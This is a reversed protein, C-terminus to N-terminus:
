PPAGIAPGAAIGASQAAPWRRVAAGWDWEGNEYQEVEAYGLLASECVNCQLLMYKSPVGVHELDFDIAGKEKADVRTNCHPCEIIM